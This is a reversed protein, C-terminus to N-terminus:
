WTAVSEAMLDGFLEDADVPYGRAAFWACVNRCDRELFQPGQPNGILDVVQPLDILVIRGDDVLLNYASLDAHAWGERALITMTSRVQDFLAETEAVTPRCQALRPAAVGHGDGIFEMMLERGILQVPYPVPAGAVHLACLADWEARAWQGAIVERGFETRSAMARNERSRRVRRGELYGTDRQFMRQESPRYRKAALLVEREGPIGRSLLSVDAEKGTKLVGLDTDVAAGDTIVWDPWPTPGHITGTDPWTSWPTDDTSGTDYESPRPRTRRIRQDPEAPEANNESASASAPRAVRM